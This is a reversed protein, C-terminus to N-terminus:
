LKNIKAYLSTTYKISNVQRQTSHNQNLIVCFQNSKFWKKNIQNQNDFWKSCNIQNQNLILKKIIKGLM